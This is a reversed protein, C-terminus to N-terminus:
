QYEDSYNLFKHKKEHSMLVRTPYCSESIKFCIAEEENLIELSLAYWKFGNKGEIM